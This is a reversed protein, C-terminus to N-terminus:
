VVFLMNIMALVLLAVAILLTIAQLYLFAENSSESVSNFRTRTEYHINEETIKKDSLDKVIGQHVYIFKKFYYYDFFYQLIGFLLSFFLLIWALVLFSKVGPAMAVSNRLAFSSITLFVTAVLILQRALDRFIENAERRYEDARQEYKNQQKIIYKSGM